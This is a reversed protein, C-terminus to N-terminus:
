NSNLIYLKRVQEVIDDIRDDKTYCDNKQQNFKELLGAIMFHLDGKGEMFNVMFNDALVELDM